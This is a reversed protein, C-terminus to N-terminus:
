QKPSGQCLYTFAETGLEPWCREVLAHAACLKRKEILNEGGAPIYKWGETQLMRRMAAQKATENVHWIM